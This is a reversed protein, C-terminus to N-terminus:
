REINQSPFRLNSNTRKRGEDSEKITDKLEQRIETDLMEQTM